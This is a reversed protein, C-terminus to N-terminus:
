LWAGNRDKGNKNGKHEEEMSDMTWCGNMLRPAQSDGKKSLMKAFSFRMQTLLGLSNLTKIM